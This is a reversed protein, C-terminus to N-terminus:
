GTRNLDGQGKFGTRIRVNCLNLHLVFQLQRHRQQRLFYLLLAHADLFRGTAEQHNDAHDVGVAGHRLLINGVVHAGVHLVGDATRRTHTVNLQETGLVRHTDPHIRIFQVVELQRRNVHDACNFRLVGLNGGTLQTTCRWHFALLKVRRDDRM